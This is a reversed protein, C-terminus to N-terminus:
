LSKIFSTLDIAGEFGDERVYCEASVIEGNSRIETCVIGGGSYRIPIVISNDCKPLKLVKGIM